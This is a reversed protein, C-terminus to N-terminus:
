RELFVTDRGGTNLKVKSCNIMRVGLNKIDCNTKKQAEGVLM